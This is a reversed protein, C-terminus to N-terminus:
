VPIDTDHESSFLAPSCNQGNPLRSPVTLLLILLRCKSHVNHGISFLIFVSEVVVLHLFIASTQRFVADVVRRLVFIRTPSSGETYFSSPYVLFLRSFFLLIPLASPQFFSSLPLLVLRLFWTSSSGSPGTNWTPVLPSLSSHRIISDCSHLQNGIHGCAHLCAQLKYTHRIVQNTSTM